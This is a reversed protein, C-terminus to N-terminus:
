FILSSENLGINTVNIDYVSATASFDCFGTFGSYTGECIVDITFLTEGELERMATAFKNYAGSSGSIRDSVVEQADESTLVFVGFMGGSAGFFTDDMNAVNYTMDSRYTEFGQEQMANVLRESFGIFYSYTFSDEITYASYVPSLWPDDFADYEGNEGSYEYSAGSDTFSYAVDNHTYDLSIIRKAYDVTCSAYIDENETWSCKLVIQEGFAQLCSVTCTLGAPSISVYDTVVKGDAWSSLADSWTVSWNVSKITAIEPSLTATITYASEAMPSVGYEEYDMPSISASMLAVGTGVSEGIIAGSKDTENAEADEVTEEDNGGFWTTVDWNTFGSSMAALAGVILAVVLILIIATLLGGKQKYTM